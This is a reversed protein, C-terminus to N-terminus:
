GWGHLRIGEYYGKCPRQPRQSHLLFSTWLQYCTRRTRLSCGSPGWGYSLVVQTCTKPTVRHLFWAFHILAGPPLMPFLLPGPTCQQNFVSAVSEWIRFGFLASGPGIVATSSSYAPSRTSKAEATPQYGNTTPTALQGTTLSPTRSSSGEPPERLAARVLCVVLGGFLKSSMLPGLFRLIVVHPVCVMVCCAFIVFYVEPCWSLSSM